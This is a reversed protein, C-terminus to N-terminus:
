LLVCDQETPQQSVQLASGNETLISQQLSAAIVAAPNHLVFLTCWLAGTLDHKPKSKKRLTMFRQMLSTGSTSVHPSGSSKNTHASHRVM